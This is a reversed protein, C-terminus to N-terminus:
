SRSGPEIVPLEIYSAYGAQHFVTQIAPVGEKDEGFPNGTNLNRDIRPFNSSSVDIRIRHGQRFAMSTAGLDIVYEHIEGPTLPEPKLVSRRYRARICGEAVNYAAGNPHVDVMKTTFDTDKTSTSAFIHLTLPGTVELDQDLEPTTYCLVDSRTEIHTQDLPGPVLSGTPLNRGGHTPVPFRPDYVYIDPPEDGPEDRSLFGDGAATRAQGRSHLFYRQWQTGPLPWTEASRWQNVGMVFYRVPVLHESDIGRLYKDFFFLHREMVFSAMGTSTPGFHLGGVYALLSRGHAWPGCLLHQGKRAADLGGREKMGLYNKFLSTLFLDYWGASHFCPVQVRDYAWHLDKETKMSDLAGKGVRAAFGEALGEFKFYPLDKLPLFRCAEDMHLLAYNVKKRMESVDRGKKRLREIMDVAMAGYWSISQELDVVGTMQTDSLLGSPSISPAIAKLHPPAEIATQWQIRGLYSGGAMGVNGDCWPETAVWEVTDYGDPGEPMGPLFEGESSFRGRTDQIIVAYGAVAAHFPSLYESNHMFRKNYPTRIVIAPHKEGDEPRFVDARLTVGDRTTMPVDLDIRISRAM